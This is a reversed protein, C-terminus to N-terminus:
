WSCPGREMGIFEGHALTERGVATELVLGGQDDIEVFRGSRRSAGQGVEISAGHGYALALWRTRMAAFGSNQWREYAVAFRGLLASLVSERDAGLQGAQVLNTAPWSSDPPHHVINVGIGLVVWELADGASSSELLVGAAKKTGILVDNPWKLRVAAAPPLLASLAEAAALGGVLGIEAARAPPGEPRLVISAYLNGPPSSWTRGARGRGGCQEEATVDLCPGAGALALRKAEDNTSVIRGFAVRRYGRPLAASAQM